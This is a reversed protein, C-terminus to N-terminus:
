LLRKAQYPVFNNDKKEHLNLKLETLIIAVDVASKRKRELKLMTENFYKLQRHVFTLYFEQASNELCQGIMTPCREQSNFYSKLAEFRELVRELARLLSLFRTNGHQLLQEYEVDAFDCFEELELVRVNYILFFKYIKVVLREVRTSLNDM